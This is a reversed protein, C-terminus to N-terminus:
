DQLALLKNPKPKLLFVRVELRPPVCKERSEIILANGIIVVDAACWLISASM